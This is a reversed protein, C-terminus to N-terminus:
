LAPHALCQGSRRHLAGRSCDFHSFARFLDSRSGTRRPPASVAPLHSAGACSAQGYHPSLILRHPQPHCAARACDNWGNPTVGTRGPSPQRYHRGTRATGASSRRASRSSARQPSTRSAPVSSSRSTMWRRAPRWYWSTPMTNSIALRTARRAPDGLLGLDACTWGRRLRACPKRTWGSDVALYMPAAM